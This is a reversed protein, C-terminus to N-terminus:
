SGCQGAACQGTSCITGDARARPECGQLPNCIMEQCEQTSTGCSAPCVPDTSGDCLQIFTRRVTIAGGTVLGLVLGVQDSTAERVDMGALEQGGPELLSLSFRGDRKVFRIRTEAVAPSVASEVTTPESYTTRIKAKLTGDGPVDVLAWSGSPPLSVFSSEHTIGALLSTGASAETPDFTLELQFDGDWAASPLQLYSGAGLLVIEKGGQAQVALGLWAGPQAWVEEYEPGVCWSPKTPTDSGTDGTETPAGGDGLTLPEPFEACALAGLSFLLLLPRSLQLM